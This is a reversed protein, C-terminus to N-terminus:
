RKNLMIRKLKEKEPKDIHLETQLYNDINTYRNIIEQKAANLYSPKVTLVTQIFPSTHIPPKLYKNSLLYDKMVTDWEVDLASLLMAAAFGTRDKGATCHFILPYNEEHLLIKFFKGYVPSFGTVLRCNIEAMFRVGSSSDSPLALMNQQVYGSLSSGASVPLHIIKIGEPLLSPAKEAEEESRFDIVTKVGIKRIKDLDRDTLHDLSQSRFIKGYVTKRGDKSTYGGLDRFNPAGEMISDRHVSIIKKCCLIFLIALSALAFLKYM